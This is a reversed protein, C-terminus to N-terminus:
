FVCVEVNIVVLGHVFGVRWERWCTKNSPLCGWSGRRRRRRRIVVVRVEEKNCTCTWVMVGGGARSCCSAWQVLALDFITTELTGLQRLEEGGGGVGRGEEGGWGMVLNM